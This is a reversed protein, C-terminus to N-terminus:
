ESDTDGARRLRQTHLSEELLKTFWFASAAEGTPRHQVSFSFLVSFPRVSTQHLKCPPRFGSSLPGM